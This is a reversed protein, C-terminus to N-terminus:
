AKEEQETKDTNAVNTTIALLPIGGDLKTNDTQDIPLRWMSDAAQQNIGACYVKNFGLESLRLRQRALRGSADSM